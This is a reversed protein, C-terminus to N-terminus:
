INLFSNNHESKTTFTRRVVCNMQRLREISMKERVPFSRLGCKDTLVSMDISFTDRCQMKSLGSKLSIWKIIIHEEMQSYALDTLSIYDSAKMRIIRLNFDNELVFELAHIAEVM